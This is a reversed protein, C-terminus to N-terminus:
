RLKRRMWSQGHRGREVGQQGAGLPGPDVVHGKGGVEGEFFGGFAEFVGHVPDVEGPDGVLLGKELGDALGEAKGVPVAV